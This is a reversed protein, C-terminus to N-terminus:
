YNKSHFFDIISNNKYNQLLYIFLSIFIKCLENTRATIANATPASMMLYLSSVTCQSVTTIPANNKTDPSMETTSFLRGM